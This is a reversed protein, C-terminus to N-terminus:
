LQSLRSEREERRKKKRSGPDQNSQKKDMKEAPPRRVTSDTMSTPTSVMEVRMNTVIFRVLRHTAELQNTSQNPVTSPWVFLTTGAKERTQVHHNRKTPMTSNQKVTCKKLIAGAPDAPEKSEDNNSISAQALAAAAIQPITKWPSVHGSLDLQRLKLLTTRFSARVRVRVRM